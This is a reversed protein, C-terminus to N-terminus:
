TKTLVNVRRGNEVWEQKWGFLDLSAGAIPTGTVSDAVFYLPGGDQAKRVIATDNLWLVIRDTNGDSLVVTVLYAGAPLKPVEVEAISDRHEPRPVVDHTWQAVPQGVFKRDGETVITYGLQDISMRSWNLEKPNAKLMRQVEDLLGAVNIPEATFSLKTGNRFRVGLKAQTASVQTRAPEFSLWKGTIQALREQALKSTPDQKLLAQWEAAAQPYQRRNEFCQALLTRAQTAITGQPGDALQRFSPVFAYDDRLQFRRIGNALRAVTENAALTDLTLIAGANDGDAPDPLRFWGRSRLTIVDFQSQAFQAFELDVRPVESPQVKKQQDLLWRYREGDSKTADWSAPISYYLPEGEATVPADSGQNRGWWPPTEDFDPLQSLDTLRQLQWAQRDSRNTMLAQRLVRLVSVKVAPQNDPVLRLAEKLLQLARVRDRDSTWVARGQGDSNGRSYVGGVVQGNSPLSLYIGGASSLVEFKKSHVAITKELLADTEAVRDLRTLCQVAQQLFKAAAEPPTQPNLLQPEVLELARKFNGQKMLEASQEVTVQGQEKAAVTLRWTATVLFLTLGIMALRSSLCARFFANLRMAIWEELAGADRM